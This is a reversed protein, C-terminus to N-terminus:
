RVELAITFEVRTMMAQDVVFAINTSVEADAFESPLLPSVCVTRAFAVFPLMAVIAALKM